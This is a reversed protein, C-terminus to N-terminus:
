IKKKAKKINTNKRKLISNSQFKVKISTPKNLLIKIIKSGILNGTNSKEELSSFSIFNRYTRIEFHEKAKKYVHPSKLLSIKKITMPLAVINTNIKLKKCIITIYKLYTSLSNKSNSTLTLKYNM